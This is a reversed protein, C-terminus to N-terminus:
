ELFGFARDLRELHEAQRALLQLVRNAFLTM